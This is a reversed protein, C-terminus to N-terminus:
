SGNATLDPGVTEPFTAAASQTFGTLYVNGSADM